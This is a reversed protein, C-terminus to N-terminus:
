ACVGCVCVFMFVCVYRWPSTCHLRELKEGPVPVHHSSALKADGSIGKREALKTWVGALHIRGDSTYQMHVALAHLCHASIRSQVDTVGHSELHSGPSSSLLMQIVLINRPCSPMFSILLALLSLVCNRNVGNALSAAKPCIFWFLLQLESRIATNQNFWFIEQWDEQLLLTVGGQSCSLLFAESPNKQDRIGKTQHGKLLFKLWSRILSPSPSVEPNELILKWQKKSMTILAVLDRLDQPM